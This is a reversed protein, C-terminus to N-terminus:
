QNHSRWLRQLILYCRTRARISKVHLASEVNSKNNFVVEGREAVVATVEDEDGLLGTAVKM